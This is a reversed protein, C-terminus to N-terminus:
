FPWKVYWGDADQYVLIQKDAETLEMGNLEYDVDTSFVYVTISPHGPYELTQILEPDSWGNIVYAESEIMDTWFSEYSARLEERLARSEEAEEGAFDNAALFPELEFFCLRQIPEENGEEVAALLIDVKEAAVVEPTKEVVPANRAAAQAWVTGALLLIIVLPKVPHM